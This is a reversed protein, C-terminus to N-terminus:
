SQLPVQNQLFSMISSKGKDLIEYKGGHYFFYGDNSIEAEVFKGNKKEFYLNYVTVDLPTQISPDSGTRKVVANELVEWLANLRQDQFDVSHGTTGNVVISCSRIESSNFGVVSPISKQVFAYVIITVFIICVFIAIISTRSRMRM